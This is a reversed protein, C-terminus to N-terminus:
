RAWAGNTSQCGCTACAPADGTLSLGAADCETSGGISIDYGECADIGSITITGDAVAAPDDGGVTGSGGLVVTAGADSGTYTCTVIYLDSDAPDCDVNVLTLAGVGCTAVTCDTVEATTTVICGEGDTIEITYTGVGPATIAIPSASMGSIATGMVSYSYMSADFGPLGGAATVTIDCGAVAAMATMEELFVVPAADHIDLSPCLDGWNYDVNTGDALASVYVVTNLPATTSGDNVIPAAPYVTGYITVGALDAPGVTADAPNPDATDHLVFGVDMCTSYDVAQVADSTPTLFEGWCIVAPGATIPSATTADVNDGDPDLYSTNGANQDIENIIIDYAGVDGANAGDVQIALVEGPNLCCKTVPGAGASGTACPTIACNGEGTYTRPALGGYCGGAATGDFTRYVGFNFTGGQLEIDVVGSAPVTFYHWVTQNGGGVTPEGALTEICANTNDGSGGVAGPAGIANVAVEYAADALALCMIDNLPAADPNPSFGATVPDWAWVDIDGLSVTVPDLMAYYTYGPELCTPTIIATAGGFTAGGNVDTTYDRIILDACSYNAPIAPAFDPDPSFMNVSEGQLVINDELYIQGSNPAVFSVWVSGDPDNTGTLNEDYEYAPPGGSNDQDVESDDTCSQSVSTIENGVVANGGISGDNTIPTASLLLSIDEAVCPVNPSSNPGGGLDLVAIEITGLAGPDDASLQIYYVEGPIIGDTGVNNCSLDFEALFSVNAPGGLDDDGIWSLYEWYDKVTSGDCTNLGPDCGAGNAAHYVSLETGTGLLSGDDITTGNVGTGNNNDYTDIQVNGSAPATFWYWASGGSGSTSGLTNTNEWPEITQDSCWSNELSTGAGANGDDILSVPVEMADCYLDAVPPPLEGTVTVTGSYCFTGPCGGTANVCIPGFTTVGAVSPLPILDISEGFDGDCIVAAASGLACGGGDDECARFTVELDAPPPCGFDENYLNQNVALPCDNCSTAECQDDVDGGTWWWTPDSDGTVDFPLNDCDGMGSVDVDTVDVSINLQANVSIAAFLCVILAIINKM